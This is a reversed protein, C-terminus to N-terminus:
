RQSWWHFVNLVIALLLGLALSGLWVLVCALLITGLLESM